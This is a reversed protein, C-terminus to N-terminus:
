TDIRVFYEDCDDMDCVVKVDTRRTRFSFGCSPCGWKLMKRGAEKTGGFTFRELGLDENMVM